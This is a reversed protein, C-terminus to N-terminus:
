TTQPSWSAPQSPPALTRNPRNLYRRLRLIWRLRALLLKPLIWKGPMKRVIPHSAFDFWGVPADERWHAYHTLVKFLENLYTPRFNHYYKRYVDEVDDEILGEELAQDYVDTGPYFTLSYLILEYPKPLRAMFRLTEAESEESEWPNDIILDYYPTLRDGFEALLTASNIVKRETQPRKYEMRMEKAAADIGMRIEILGADVLTEIKDRRVTSPTVGTISLPLHIRRKYEEAFIKMEEISLFFFADDDFKVKDFVGVRNLITEVETVLNPMTKRRVSRNEPFEQNLFVNCCYTCDFPCGRSPITLYIGDTRDRLIEPTMPILDNNELVFHNELDFDPLPILNLDEPPAARLVEDVGKQRIGPLPKGNGLNELLGVFSVEAEGVAVYDAHELCEEPRITPHIGGWVVPIGLKEKIARTIAVSNDWFNSMLTVGVLDSDKTLEVMRDLVSQSYPETFQQTMFLMQTEHGAAKAVGSLSRLGYSYVDPFPSIFTIKM